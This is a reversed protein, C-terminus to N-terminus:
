LVPKQLYAFDMAVSSYDTILCAASKLVELVDGNQLDLIELRDGLKQFFAQYQQMNRHLCLTIRVPTDQFEKQIQDIVSSWIRYFQTHTFDTTHEVAQMQHTKYLWERWTPMIVIQDGKSVDVLHDYRCLGTLVVAGKPYGFTRCVFDKERKASCM